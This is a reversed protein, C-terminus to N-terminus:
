DQNMWPPLLTLETGPLPTHLPHQECWPLGPLMPLTCSGSVVEVPGRRSVEKWLSAKVEYVDKWFNVMLRPCLSLGHTQPACGLSLGHSCYLKQRLAKEMNSHAGLEADSYAVKERTDPIPWLRLNAILAVGLSM